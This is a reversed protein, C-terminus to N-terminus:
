IAIRVKGQINPNWQTTTGSLVDSEERHELM